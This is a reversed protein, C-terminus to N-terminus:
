GSAALEDLARRMLNEPVAMLKPGDTWILAAEIRRGPFVDGLLAWYVAMQRIYAPDAAEVADPAPRSTKFDAVLVRAADVLLRDIRGSVAFGPPLGAASGALAVEARSGPGFVASFRADDLVGFAAEAMEARQEDTLDPERALMRAAAARRGAEAVDPLAQLLRHIIEGRRYRGLGGTRTLPSVAPARDDEGLQSPAAWRLAAPETPALRQTWLPLVGPQPGAALAAVVLAPDPGYRMASAGADLAIRGAWPRIADNEFAQEVVDRWSGRFYQQPKDVGAVILRDRARTLAVYLLRLSEQDTQRDRFARAKASAACDDAKRPAWLFGGDDTKLLPGGLSTAKTTTDPLIVVPAELGKAGHATMVRVEGAGPRDPDEQERKVEIESAAMEAIFRELETVGRAEAALAEALFADLADEAERGLRELFRRKMSWGREDLRALVRAYFDFPARAQAERIAWGFFRAAEGWEPRESSRALLTAWLSRRGREHALDYLPVEEVDCFPSRLLAALTLDDDPFRAFRGLGLLDQFAIHESLLLRDAGGVPVHAKKLARIIEHFLAARRRVLVLVDGYGMRRPEGTKRDGVAEGRGVMAKIELAIRRALKKNASEPPEADVPAWPDPEDWPETVELPWLDVSGGRGRTSRHTILATAGAPSLAARVEPLAAVADVFGLIEETSRWSERLPVHEFSRGAGSVMADFARGEIFLREPAAGQFSFISQKEDGVAFVTRERSGAGQDVFFEATLARLIDWQEPATDQAEDLLVHDLGGDLKYLVWAADARVTLLEHTREILDGFDLARLASKSGEYLQVYALALSIAHVSAEAIRAAKIRDIAAKLRKQERLLWKAATRDVQRGALRKLPEGEKTSFCAWVQAFPAGPELRAMAEGRRQDDKGGLRLAEAANRWQGWRIKAVADAEIAETPMAEDFGCRRWIDDGFAGGCAEVYARIARREAEFAAFMEQFRAYDLEVSFYSYARGIPSTPHDFAAQALDEKARASVERAAADELVTFGPSVGAELPFRRLLKECFAHITTIKIGGPTELARAFLARARALERTPEDLDALKRSLAADEMVAWDGLEKFLRRQMEAAAAKTFTVCLIAEPNPGTLLLRAVRDVLTKTKGSGANASVFVSAAPNSARVQAQGQAPPVVRLNM